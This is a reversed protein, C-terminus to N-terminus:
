GFQWVETGPRDVPATCRCFGAAEAVRVSAPNEADCRAIVTTVSLEDVAWSAVLQAATGAIGRGRHTPAVWWGIEATGPEGDVNLLGIEGVVEDDVEIALDLALGRARRDAEGAIWREAAATDTTSPVGTWRAVEPDAWGAALAPGDGPRWPRLALDGEHLPPDPLPIPRRLAM